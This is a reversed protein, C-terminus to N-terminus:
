IEQMYICIKLIRNSYHIKIHGEFPGEHINFRRADGGKGGKEGWRNQRGKGTAGCEDM